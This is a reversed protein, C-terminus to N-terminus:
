TIRLVGIPNLKEALKYFGMSSIDASSCLIIEQLRYSLNIRQQIRFCSDLLLHDVLYPCFYIRIKADQM